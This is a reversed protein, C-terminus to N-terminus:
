MSYNFQESFMSKARKHDQADLTRAVRKVAAANLVRKQLRARSTDQAKAESLLKRSKRIQKKKSPSASPPNLPLPTETQNAPELPQESDNDELSANVPNGSDDRNIILGHFPCKVRDRRPCLTGNELPYRCSRTVPEFEGSLTIVRKITPAAQKNAADQPREGNLWVTELDMDREVTYESVLESLKIVPVNELKINKESVNVKTESEMQIEKSHESSKSIEVAHESSKSTSPLSVDLEISSKLDKSTSPKPNSDALFDSKAPFEPLKYKKVNAALTTPDSFLEEEGKKRKPVDEVVCRSSNLKEFDIGLKIIEEFITDLSRKMEVCKRFLEHNTHRGAKSLTVTWTKCLPIHRKYLLNYQDCLNATRVDQLGPQGGTQWLEICSRSEQICQDMADQNDTVEKDVQLVRGRWLSAEREREAERRMEDVDNLLTNSSFNVRRKLAEHIIKLKPYGEMYADIWSKFTQISKSQLQKATQKPIPLPKLSDVGTCLITLEEFKEITLNRFLHSRTFLEDFVALCLLRIDSNNKKLQVFLEANAIKLASESNKCRKKVTKLKKDDIKKDSSTVLDGILKIMQKKEEEDGQSSM